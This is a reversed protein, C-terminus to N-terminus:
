IVKVFRKCLIHIVNIFANKLFSYCKQNTNTKLITIKRVTM